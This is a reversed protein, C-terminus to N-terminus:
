HEGRLQGRTECEEPALWPCNRQLNSWRKSDLRDKDVRRATLFAVLVATIMTTISQVILVVSSVSPCPGVAQEVFM